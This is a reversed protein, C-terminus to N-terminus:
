VGGRLNRRDTGSIDIVVLAEGGQSVTLAPRSPSGVEGWGVAGLLDLGLCDDVFIRRFLKDPSLTM